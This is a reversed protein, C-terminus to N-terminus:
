MTKLVCIKHEELTESKTFCMSLSFFIERFEFWVKEQQKHGDNKRGGVTSVPFPNHEKEASVKYKLSVSCSTFARSKAFRYITCPNSCM